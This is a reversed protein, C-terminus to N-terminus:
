AVVGVQGIMARATHDIEQGTVALATPDHARQAALAAAKCQPRDCQAAAIGEANKFARAFQVDHLVQDHPRLHNVQRRERRRDSAQSATLGQLAACVVNRGVDGAHAFVVRAVREIANM